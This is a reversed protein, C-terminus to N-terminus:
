SPVCSSRVVPAMRAAIEALSREIAEMDAGTISDDEWVKGEHLARALPGAFFGAWEM